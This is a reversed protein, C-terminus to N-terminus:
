EEYVQGCNGDYMRTACVCVNGRYMRCPELSDAAAGSCKTCSHYVQQSRPVGVMARACKSHRWYATGM